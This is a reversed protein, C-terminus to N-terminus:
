KKDGLCCTGDPLEIDSAVLIVSAMQKQQGLRIGDLVLRAGIMSPRAFQVRKRLYKEARGVAPQKRGM